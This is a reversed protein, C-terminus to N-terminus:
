RGLGGGGSCSADKGLVFEISLKVLLLLEKNFFFLFVISAACGILTRGFSFGFFALHLVLIITVVAATVTVTTTTAVVAGVHLVLSSKFL